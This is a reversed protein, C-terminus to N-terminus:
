KSVKDFIAGMGWYHEVKSIPVDSVEFLSICLTMFAGVYRDIKLRCECQLFIYVCVGFGIEDIEIVNVVACKGIVSVNLCWSM